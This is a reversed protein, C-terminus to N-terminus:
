KIKLGGKRANFMVVNLLYQFMQAERFTGHVQQFELGVMIELDIAFLQNQLVRPIDLHESRM